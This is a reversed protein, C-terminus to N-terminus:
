KDVEVLLFADARAASVICSAASNACAEATATLPIRENLSKELCDLLARTRAIDDRLRRVEGNRRETAKM